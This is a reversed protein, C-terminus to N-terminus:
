TGEFKGDGIVYVARCPKKNNRRYLGYRSGIVEVPILDNTVYEADSNYRDALRMDEESSMRGTRILIEKILDLDLQRVDGGPVVEMVLSRFAYWDKKEIDRQEKPTTTADLIVTGFIIVEKGNTRVAQFVDDAYNYSVLGEGLIPQGAWDVIPTGACKHGRPYVLPKGPLKPVPLVIRLSGSFAEAGTHEAFVVDVMTGNDFIIRPADRQRPRLYKQAHRVDGDVCGVLFLQLLLFALM